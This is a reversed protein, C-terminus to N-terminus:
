GYWFIITLPQAIAYRVRHAFNLLLLLNAAIAFLLSVANIATLRLIENANERYAASIPQPSVYWKPDPVRQETELSGGGPVTVIWSQVLACVSMLTALPGFTGAILPFATSTFWWRRFSLMLLIWAVIQLPQNSQSFIIGLRHIM